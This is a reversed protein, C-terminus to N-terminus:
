SLLEAAVRGGAVAAAVTSFLGAILYSEAGVFASRIRGFSSGVVSAKGSHPKTRALLSSPSPRAANVCSRQLFPINFGFFPCWVFINYGSLCLNLIRGLNSPHTSINLYSM